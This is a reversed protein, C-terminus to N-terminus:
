FDAGCQPCRRDPLGGLRYGCEDCTAEPDQRPDPDDEVTCAWCETFQGEIMQGCQTCQWPQQRAAERIEGSEFREVIARARPEDEDHLIGLEPLTGFFPVGGTVAAMNENLVLTEIGANRLLNRVIEIVARNTSSFVKKM